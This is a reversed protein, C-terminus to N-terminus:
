HIIKVLLQPIENNIFENTDEGNEETVKLQNVLETYGCLLLDNIAKTNGNQLL